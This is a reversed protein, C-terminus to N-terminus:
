ARVLTLPSISGAASSSMAWPGSWARWAIATAAAISNARKWAPAWGMAMTDMSLQEWLPSFSFAETTVM